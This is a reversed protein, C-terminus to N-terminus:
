SWLWVWPYFQYPLWAFATQAFFLWVLLVAFNYFLVWGVLITNRGRPRGLADPIQAWVFVQLPIWYLAVRDVATSSPSVLLLGVFGFAGLSMWTWFKKQEYSLMFKRRFLLFVGAPLANMVIRVGAGSSAYQAEVYNVMLHDVSEQLLLIFLLSSTGLIGLTTLFRHKTGSLLALPVLIVASKHFLAAIAIWGVFRWIGTHRILASLGMMALGIAVGQRTYGMAVVMVLYPVAVALALWPRPLSRCFQLLGASFLLACVLNPLYAGGAINAGIWNLLAYAPDKSGLLEVFPMGSANEIHVIYNFWDGGVEHRLGIMLTLFLGMAYWGIGQRSRTHVRQSLNSSRETIAPWFTSLLMLLYPWM